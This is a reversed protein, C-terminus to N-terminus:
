GLDKVILIEESLFLQEGVRQSCLLGNWSIINVYIFSSYLSRVYCCQGYLVYMLSDMWHKSTTPLFSAYFHILYIFAHLHGGRALMVLPNADNFIM